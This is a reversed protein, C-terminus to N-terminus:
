ITMRLPFEFAGITVLRVCDFPLQGVVAFGTANVPLAYGTLLEISFKQFSCVSFKRGVKGSRREARM